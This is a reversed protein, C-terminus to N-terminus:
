QRYKKIGLKGLIHRKVNRLSVKFSTKKKYHNPHVVDFVPSQLKILQEVSVVDGLSKNNIFLFANQRYWWDVEENDWVAQRFIDFCAYDNEKFLNVWYSQWQENIHNTGGQGPTAAGFVVVNAAKCIDEVFTKARSQSLHEAVEVSIALDYQQSVEIRNEMNIPTFNIQKSLLADPNVWSGDFGQTVQCGLQEAAYLWAGHGCGFDVASRPQYVEFLRGLIAGASRISGDTLSEFFNPKYKKTLEKDQM